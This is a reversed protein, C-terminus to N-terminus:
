LPLACVSMYKEEWLPMVVEPRFRAAAAHARRAMDRREQDHSMLWEMKEAVDAVDMRALLGTIGNDIIEAPGCPCDTAVPPVGCAMAEILVLGYGETDSTFVFMESRKFEDCINNTPPNLCIRQQMHLSDILQQLQQQEPGEGFIDVHWTPFRHAISAFAEILRDFRKQRHYRGAAIIRGTQRELRSIDDCYFSVANGVVEVRPIYRRWQTADRQTLAILTHCRSLTRLYLRKDARELWNRGVMDGIFSSHAEVIIHTRRRMAIIAPMFEWTYTTVVIADPKLRDVARRLLRAFRHRMVAAAVLRRPLPLSYLTFFRCGLDLHRVRPSIPFAHPHQGQEYTVLTVDHGALAMYNAKDALAREVGHAKAM